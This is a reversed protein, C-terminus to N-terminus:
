SDIGLTSKPMITFVTGIVSGVGFLVIILWSATKEPTSIEAGNLRLHFAFPLSSM